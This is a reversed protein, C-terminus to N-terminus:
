TRDHVRHWSNQDNSGDEECESAKLPVLWIVNSQRARCRRILATQLAFTSLRFTEMRDLFWM